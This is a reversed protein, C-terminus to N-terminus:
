KKDQLIISFRSALRRHTKHISLLLRVCKQAIYVVSDKLFKNMTYHNNHKSNYGPNALEFGASSSPTKLAISIRLVGEKPPSTFGDDGHRLIKPMNFTEATDFIYKYAFNLGLKEQKAVLYRM